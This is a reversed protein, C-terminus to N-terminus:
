GAGANPRDIRRPRGFWHDTAMALAGLALMASFEVTLLRPAERDLWAVAKPVKPTEGPGAEEVAREVVTPGISYALATVVFVTSVVMLLVYFPNPSKRPRSPNVNECAGARNTDFEPLHRIAAKSYPGKTPRTFCASNNPGVARNPTSWVGYSSDM